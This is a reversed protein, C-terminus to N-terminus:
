NTRQGYPAPLSSVRRRQGVFSSFLGTQQVSSSSIPSSPRSSVFYFVSHCRCKRVIVGEMKTSFEMAKKHTKTYFNSRSSNSAWLFLLSHIPQLHFISFVGFQVPSLIENQKSSHAQSFHTTGISKIM